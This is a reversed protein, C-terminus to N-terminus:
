TAAHNARHRRSFRRVRRFFRGHAPGLMRVMRVVGMGVMCVMTFEGVTMVGARTEALASLVLWLMLLVGLLLHLLAMGVFFLRSRRSWVAEGHLVNTLAAQERDYQAFGRVLDWNNITDVLRGSVKSIANQVNKGLHIGLRGLYASLGLFIIIWVIVVIGYSPSLAGLLLGSAMMLAASQTIEVTVINMVGWGSNAAQSVKQALRGPLNDHFYIPAQGMLHQFLRYKIAVRLRPALYVNILQGLQSILPSGIWLAFIVVVWVAATDGNGQRSIEETLADILRGIAYPQLATMLTGVTTALVVLLSWIWLSSRIIDWLFPLARREGYGEPLPEIAPPEDLRMLRAFRKALASGAFLFWPTPRDVDIASKM